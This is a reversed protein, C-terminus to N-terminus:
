RNNTGKTRELYDTLSNAVGSASLRYVNNATENRRKNLKDLQSQTEELLKKNKEVQKHISDLKIDLRVNAQKLSDNSNVLEKNEKQLRKIEDENTEGQPSKKFLIFFVLLITLIIIAVNKIDLNKKM